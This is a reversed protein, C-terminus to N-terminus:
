HKLKTKIFKSKGEYEARMKDAGKSRGFFGLNNELLNIENKIGDIKRRIDNKENLLLKSAAPSSKLTEIKQKSCSKEKEAGELKLGKYHADLAEKFAAYVIDKQKIPVHGMTTFQQSFNKLDNLVQKKDDGAKYEKITEIFALKEELNKENAKDKEDFFAQRASFFEDCAGRFAKWLKQENRQGAHGINKWDGQLRRLHDGTTKWDTSSKLEIAKDVLKQKKDALLNQEGKFADYFVKKDAFFVDCISRFAKWVDENEKKSYSDIKELGRTQGFNNKNEGGLRESFDFFQQRRQFKDNRCGFSKLKM